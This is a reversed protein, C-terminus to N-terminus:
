QREPADDAPPALQEEPVVLLTPDEAVIGSLVNRRGLPSSYESHAVVYNTLRAANVLSSATAPEPVTYSPAATLAPDSITLSAAANIPENAALLPAQDLTPAQLRQLGLLAVTAV